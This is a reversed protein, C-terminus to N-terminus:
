QAPQAFSTYMQDITYLSEMSVDSLDVNLNLNDTLFSVLTPLKFSELLGLDFLNENTPIESAGVPDQQQIFKRLEHVFAEKSM